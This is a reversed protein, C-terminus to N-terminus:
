GPALTAEHERCIREGDARSLPEGTLGCRWRGRGESLHHRCTHCVGFSRRGELVQLGRLVGTLDDLLGEPLHRAAARFRGVAEREASEVVTRAAPTPTLRVVRRDRPDSARDLFGKAQLLILSQSVTGKTLGLYEAVAQPTNSYRNAAALYLLIQVHVPQLGHAAGATKLRAQALNGLREALDLLRVLDATVGLSYRTSVV